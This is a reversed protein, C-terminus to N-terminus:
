AIQALRPRRGGASPVKIENTPLLVIEAMAAGRPGMFIGLGV